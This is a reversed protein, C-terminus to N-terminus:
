PYSNSFHGLNEVKLLAKPRNFQSADNKQTAVCAADIQLSFKSKRFLCVCHMDIWGCRLLSRLRNMQNILPSQLFMEMMSASTAFNIWQGLSKFPVLHSILSSALAPAQRCYFVSYWEIVLFAFVFSSTAFDFGLFMVFEWAFLFGLAVFHFSLIMIFMYIILLCDLHAKDFNVVLL